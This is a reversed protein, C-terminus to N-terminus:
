MWEFFQAIMSACEVCMLYRDHIFISSVSSSIVGIKNYIRGDVCVSSYPIEFTKLQRVAMHLKVCEIYFTFCDWLVGMSACPPSSTYSRSM